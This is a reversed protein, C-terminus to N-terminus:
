TYNDAHIVSVRLEKVVTGGVRCEVGLACYQPTLAPIFFGKDVNGFLFQCFHQCLDRFSSILYYLGSYANM